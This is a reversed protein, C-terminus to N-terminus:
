INREQYSKFAKKSTSLKEAIDNNNNIKPLDNYPASEASPPASKDSPPPASEASPLVIEYINSFNDGNGKPRTTKILLEKEILGNVTDIALRRSMGCKIGITQYSPFAGESNHACRCLYLLVIKDNRKLRKIDFIVAPAQFYPINISIKNM